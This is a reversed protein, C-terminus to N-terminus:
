LLQKWDVNQLNLQFLSKTSGSSGTKHSKPALCLRHLSNRAKRSWSRRGMTVNRRRLILWSSQVRRRLSRRRRVDGEEGIREQLHIGSRSLEESHTPRPMCRTRRRRRPSTSSSGRRCPQCLRQVVRFYRNLQNNCIKLLNESLNHDSPNCKSNIMYTDLFALGSKSHFECDLIGVM